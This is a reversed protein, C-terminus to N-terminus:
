IDNKNSEKSEVTEILKNIYWRAKKLDELPNNKNQYRWLYKQVNGKLFGCFGEFSMSEKIAEICEISGSTYHSPHNVPDHNIDSM